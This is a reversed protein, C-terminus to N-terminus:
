NGVMGKLGKGSIKRNEDITIKKSLFFVGARVDGTMRINLTDKMSYRILSFMAGDELTANLPVSLTNEQKRRIKVKENLQVEGILQGELYVKVTSPLLKIAFWNPNTVVAGITMSIERGKISDLKFGDMREFELDEYTACSCIGLLMLTSLAIRHLWTRPIM